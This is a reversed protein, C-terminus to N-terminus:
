GCDGRSGAKAYGDSSGYLDGNTDYCDCVGTNEDCSGRNSCIDNEKSGKVSKYTIKSIPSTMTTFGDASIEIFGGIDMMSKDIQAVLPHLSGFQETFEISVISSGKSDCIAANNGSSSTVKLGTLSPIHMLSKKLYAVNATFPINSSPLGNYYLVFSGQSAVCRLLQVENVQSVTLPDDGGPCQRQSCDYGFNPFDCVCGQIKEADWVQLYEYSASYENRTKSSFDRMSMCRGKENCGLNCGLRECASGTFGEM